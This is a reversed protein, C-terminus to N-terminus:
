PQSSTASNSAGTADACAPATLLRLALWHWDFLPAVKVAPAVTVAIRKRKGFLRRATRYQDACPNHAAIQKLTIYKM